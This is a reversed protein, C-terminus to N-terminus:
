VAEMNKNTVNYAWNVGALWGRTLPTTEFTEKTLSFVTADNLTSAGSFGAVSEAVIYRGDETTIRLTM